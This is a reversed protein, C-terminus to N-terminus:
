GDSPMVSRTLLGSGAGPPAAGSARAPAPYPSVPSRSRAASAPPVSVEPGDPLQHSTQRRSGPQRACGSSCLRAPAAQRAHRRVTGANPLIVAHGLGAHWALLDGNDDSVVLRRDPLAQDQQEPGQRADGDDPLGRVALRGDLQDGRRPRLDHQHVQVHGPAVAGGGGGPNGGAVRAGPHHHEGGVGVVLRDDARQPGAREAVQGLVRRPGLDAPRDVRGRGALRDKVRAHLLPQEVGGDARRLRGARGGAPGTGRRGSDRGPGRRRRGIGTLQRGTLGVHQPEDRGALGVPFDGPGQEDGLRRYLRVDVADEGLRARPVPGLRDAVGVGM